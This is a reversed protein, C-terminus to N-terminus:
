GIGLVWMGTVWVGGGGGGLLLQIIKKIYESGIKSWSYERYIDINLINKYKLTCTYLM